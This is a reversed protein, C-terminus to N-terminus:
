QLISIVEKMEQEEEEDISPQNFEETKLRQEGL